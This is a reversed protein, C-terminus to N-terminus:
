AARPTRALAGHAVVVDVPARIEFRVGGDGGVEYALSLPTGPTVAQIFKAQAVSWDAAATATAEGIAALAEDLLVVAPLIPRGPFHGAYAPHDRAIALPREIM